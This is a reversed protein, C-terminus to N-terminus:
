QLILVHLVVNATDSQLYIESIPLHASVFGRDRDSGGPILVYAARPLTRSVYQDGVYISAGAANVPSSQLAFERCSSPSFVQDKANAQAVLAATILATLSHVATDALTISIGIFPQFQTAM